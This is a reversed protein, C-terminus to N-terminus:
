QSSRSMAYLAADAIQISACRAASDIERPRRSIMLISDLGWCCPTSWLIPKARLEQEEPHDGIQVLVTIADCAMSRTLKLSSGGLTIAGPAGQGRDIAPMLRWGLMTGAVMHRWDDKALRRGHWSPGEALDGCIASLMRQQKITIMGERHQKWYEPRITNM